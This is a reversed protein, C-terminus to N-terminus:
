ARRLTSRRVLFWGLALLAGALSLLRVLGMGSFALFSDPNSASVLPAGHSFSTGLVSAKSSAVNLRACPTAMGSSEACVLYSGPPTDSPVQFQGMAGSNNRPAQAHVLAHGLPGIAAIPPPVITTHTTCTAPNGNPVVIQLVVAGNLTIRVVAGPAYACITVEITQGPM